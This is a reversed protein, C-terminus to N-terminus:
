GFLNYNRDINDNMTSQIGEIMAKIASQETQLDAMRTDIRTEKASIISKEYEYEIQAEERADSDNVAFINTFNSAIDTSYDNDFVYDESQTDYELDRDVTTLTYINNQLMQNLYDPDNVDNNYVWGKEAISSFIVDYFNLLAEEDATFLQNNGSISEDYAKVATDYANQWEKHQTQWQTYYESDIDYWLYQKQGSYASNESEGGLSGYKGMIEDILSHVNLKYESANGRLAGVSNGLDSGLNILGSYETYASELAKNFNEANDMFYPALTNSLQTLVGSLESLATTGGGITITSDLDEYADAWNNGASFGKTAGTGIGAKELLKTIDTETFKNKTPEDLKLENVIAENEWITEQYTEAADIKAPDIGTIEALIATRNSEWDGGPAGNPSIMEAYKKYQNDVVIAGSLDTLLYPKNKNMASPKMLNQYSLDIYSVGSNNSWKLVKQNLASQYKRSVEQMERSLTVKENSLKQLEGGITNFRSTLQLLRGQSAAMGM